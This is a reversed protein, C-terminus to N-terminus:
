CRLHCCPVQKELGYLSNKGAPTQLYRVANPQNVLLTDRCIKEVLKWMKGAAAEIRAKKGRIAFGTHEETDKIAIKVPLDDSVGKEIDDIEARYNKELLKAVGLSTEHFQEYVVREVLYEKVSEGAANVNTKLGYFDITHWSDKMRAIVPSTISAGSFLLANYTDSYSVNVVGKMM